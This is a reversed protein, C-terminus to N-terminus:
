PLQINKYFFWGFIGIIITFILSWYAMKQKKLKTNRIYVLKMQDFTLEKIIDWDGKIEDTYEVLTKKSLAKDNRFFRVEFLDSGYFYGSAEKGKINGEPNGLPFITNFSSALSIFWGGLFFIGLIMLCKNYNVLYIFFINYLEDLISFPLILIVIIGFVKQDISRITDQIDGISQYLFEIKKDTDM